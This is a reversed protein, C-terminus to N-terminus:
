EFSVRIASIDLCETLLLRARKALNEEIGQERLSRTDRVTESVTGPYGDTGPNPQAHRQGEAAYGDDRWSPTRRTM